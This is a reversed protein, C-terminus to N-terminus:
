FEDTEAKWLARIPEDERAFERRPADLVEWELTIPAERTQLHKIPNPTKRATPVVM